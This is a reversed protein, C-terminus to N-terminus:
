RESSPFFSVMVLDLLFSVAESDSLKAEELVSFAVTWENDYLESFMEALKTPRFVDSLDVINPNNDRLKASM